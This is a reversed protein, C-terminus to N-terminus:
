VEWDDPLGNVKCFPAGNEPNFFPCGDCGNGRMECFDKVLRAAEKVDYCEVSDTSCSGTACVPMECDEITIRVGNKTEIIM